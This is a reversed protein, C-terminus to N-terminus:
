AEVQVGRWFAIRDKVAAAAPKPQAYEWAAAPNEAGNVQVTYYSAEGKWGCVSRHGSPTLFSWAVDAKRFYTYGDIVVVDTGEALVAGNWIARAM